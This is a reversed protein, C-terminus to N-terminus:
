KITVTITFNLDRDKALNSIPLVVDDVREQKLLDDRFSALDQRTSAVGTIQIPAMKDALRAFNYSEIEIGSKPMVEILSVVDMFKAESKFANIQTAMQNAKILESSSIDFDAVRMAAENASVAYADVQTTILVYVPSALLVVAVLVASFIFFAVTIVRVWYEKIIATRVVGPILNIM